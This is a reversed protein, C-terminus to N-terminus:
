KISAFKRPARAASVIYTGAVFVVFGGAVWPLVRGWLAKEVDEGLKKIQTKAVDWLSAMLGVYRPNKTLWAADEDNLAVGKLDDRPWLYPVEDVRVPPGWSETALKSLRCSSVFADVASRCTSVCGTSREMVGFFNKIQRNTLKIQEATKARKRQATLWKVTQKSWLYADWSDCVGLPCESEYDRVLHRWKFGVKAPELTM